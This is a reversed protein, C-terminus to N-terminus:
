PNSVAPLGAKTRAIREAQSSGGGRTNPSPSISVSSSLATHCGRSEPTVDRPTRHRQQRKRAAVRDKHEREMRRCILTVVGNRETVTAAGTAKLEAIAPQMEALTSRCIRALQESTGSLRGTRDSDHMACIADAWIGRTAPSCMSLQPDKMWDGTYFMFAPLKTSPMREENQDGSDM